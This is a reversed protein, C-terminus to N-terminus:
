LYSESKLDIKRGGVGRRQTHARIHAQRDTDTERRERGGKKGEARRTRQKSQIHKSHLIPQSSIQSGELMAKFIPDFAHVIM